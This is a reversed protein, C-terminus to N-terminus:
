PKRQQAMMRLSRLRNKDQWYVTVEIEAIEYRYDSPDDTVRRIQVARRFGTGAPVATNYRGEELPKLAQWDTSPPNLLAPDIDDLPFAMAGARLYEILQRAYGVAESTRAGHRTSEVSFTFSALVGLIGVALVVIAVAIEVQSFGRPRRFLSRGTGRLAGEMSTWIVPSVEGGRRAACGM